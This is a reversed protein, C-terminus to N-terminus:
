VDSLRVRPLTHLHAYARPGRGSRSVLLCEVLDQSTSSEVGPAASTLWFGLSRADPLQLATIQEELLPILVSCQRLLISINATGTAPAKVYVKFLVEWKDLFVNMAVDLSLSGFGQQKSSCSPCILKELETGAKPM